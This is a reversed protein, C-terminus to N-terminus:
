IATAPLKRRLRATRAELRMSRRLSNKGRSILSKVASSSLNMTRSIERYSFKKLVRLTLAKRQLDPLESVMQTLQQREAESIIRQEATEKSCPIDHIDLEETAACKPEEARRLARSQRLHDFVTNRAITWLWTSFEFEPRYSSRHRFIKLFVEQTLEEAVHLDDIRQMLFSLIPKEFREYIRAFSESSGHVFESVLHRDLKLMDFSWLIFQKSFFLAFAVFGELNCRTHCFFAFSLAKKILFEANPTAALKPINTRQEHLPGPSANEDMGEAGGAM